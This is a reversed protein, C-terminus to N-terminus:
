WLKVMAWHGTWRQDVLRKLTEGECLVAMTPKRIFNYLMNCLRFFDEVAAESSMAHIVVLHLQHNLCHIYPINHDLKNQLLKELGHRGSMVSAGDYVQSLIKDTSLGASTLENLIVGTLAEADGKESTATVLLRECVGYNEDVFHM